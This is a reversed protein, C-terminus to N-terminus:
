YVSHSLSHPQSQLRVQGISAGTTLITNETSIPDGAANNTTSLSTMTLCQTTVPGTVPNKTHNHDKILFKYVFPIFVLHGVHLHIDLQLADSISWNWSTMVVGSMRYPPTTLGVMYPLHRGIFETRTYQSYVLLHSGVHKLLECANLSFGRILRHAYVHKMEYSCRM